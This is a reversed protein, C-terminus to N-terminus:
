ISKELLIKAKYSSYWDEDSREYKRFIGWSFLDVAQLGRHEQSSWHYIYLRTNADVFDFGLDGSEDLYLFVPM